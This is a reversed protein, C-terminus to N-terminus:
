PRNQIYRDLAEIYHVIYGDKNYIEYQELCIDYPISKPGGEKAQKAYQQVLKFPILLMKDFKSFFVIFFAIGEHKEFEEMFELQHQHVNKLPFRTMSTEKADFCIGFGQVMGIYDVTSRQEFYAKKINGNVPDLEVPKIPTPIKQIIGLGHHRYKENTINIFEELTSGRLGRTQFYGM